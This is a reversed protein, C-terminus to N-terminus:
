EGVEKPQLDINEFTMLPSSSWVNIEVNIVGLLRKLSFAIKDLEAISGAHVLAILDYEGISASIQTLNTNEKILKIADAQNEKLNIGVSAVVPLGLQAVNPFLIAGKIVGLAKLRRIRNLASVSSIGCEKAITKLQTRADKILTLLIKCDVKDIEGKQNMSKGTITVL